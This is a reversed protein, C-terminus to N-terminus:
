ECVSAPNRCCCVAAGVQNYMANLGWEHSSSIGRALFVLQNQQPNTLVYVFPLPPALAGQTLNAVAELQWGPPLLLSAAPNSACVTHAKANLLM